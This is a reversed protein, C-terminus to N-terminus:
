FYVQMVDDAALPTSLTLTTGVLTYDLNQALLGTNVFVQVALPNVPATNLIYTNNSGNQVGTFAQLSSQSGSGGGTGGVSVLYNQQTIPPTGGSLSLTYDGSAVSFSVRGLGDSMTPNNLSITLAEDAFLASLTGSSGDYVTVTVGPVPHGAQNIIVDNYRPM